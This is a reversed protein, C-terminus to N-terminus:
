LRFSRRALRAIMRTTTRLADPAEKLVFAKESAKTAVPGVPLRLPFLKPAAPAKAIAALANGFPWNWLTRWNSRDPARLVKSLWYPAPSQVACDTVSRNVEEGCLLGMKLSMAAPCNLTENICFLEQVSPVPVPPMGVVSPM